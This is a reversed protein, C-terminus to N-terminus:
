FYLLLCLYLSISVKTVANIKSKNQIEELSRLNVYAEFDKDYMKLRIISGKNLEFEQEIHTKLDELNAVSQPITIKEKNGKDEDCVVVIIKADM